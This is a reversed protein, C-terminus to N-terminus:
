SKLKYGRRLILYCVTWLFANATVVLAVGITLNAQGLGSLGFRIGDIVYYLPNFQAILRGLPPLQDLSFFVGSLFVIPLFLFTQVGALHDWKDAWIGAILAGLGVMLSGGVAFFLFALPNPPLGLGFLQLALWVLSGAAFASTVAAAAYAILAEGPSLPASIIDAIVGELKDFVISFASAEFSRQLITSGVLGPLLFAIFDPRGTVLGADMGAEPSLLVSFISAFLLGQLAHAGLSVPWIKLTRRVERGWLTLVGLRNWRGFRRAVLETM